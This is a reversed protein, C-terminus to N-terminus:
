DSNSYIIEFSVKLSIGELLIGLLCFCDFYKFSFRGSYFFTCSLPKFNNVKMWSYEFFNVFSLLYKQGKRFLM